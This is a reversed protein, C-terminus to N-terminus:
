SALESGTQLETWSSVKEVAFDSCFYCDAAFSSPGVVVPFSLDFAVEVLCAEVGQDACALDESALHVVPGDVVEEAPGCAEQIDLDAVDLDEEGLDEVELDEVFAVGLFAMGLEVALGPDEM